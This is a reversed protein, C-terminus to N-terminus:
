EKKAEKLLAFATSRRCGLTEGVLEPIASPKTGANYLDSYAVTFVGLSIDKRPSGIHPTITEDIIGAAWDKLVRSEVNEHLGNVIQHKLNEWEGQRWLGNLLDAIDEESKGELYEAM